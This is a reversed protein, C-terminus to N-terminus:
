MFGDEEEYSSFFNVVIDVFFLTDVVWDIILLTQTEEDVFAIRFPMYIATYLLLIINIM